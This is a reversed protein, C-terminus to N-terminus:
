PLLLQGFGGDQQQTLGLQAGSITTAGQVRGNPLVYVRGGARTTWEPVGVTLDPKGDGTLDGVSLGDGVWRLDSGSPRPLDQGDIIDAEGPRVGGPGGPLVAIKGDGAVALDETGDGTVDGVTFGRAAELSEAYDLNGPRDVSGVTIPSTFGQRAGLGTSTGPVVSMQPKPVDNRDRMVLDPRGDGTVDGTTAYLGVWDRGFVTARDSLGRPGGLRLEGWYHNEEGQSLWHVMLALDSRGDANFDAVRLSHFADEAGRENPVILKPATEVAPVPRDVVDRFFLLRPIFGGTAVVDFRGNGDFDGIALSDFDSLTNPPTRLEVARRTLGSAGGYIITARPIWYVGSEGWGESRGGVLLDDYGDHDFDASEMTTGFEMTPEGRTPVDLCDHTIIQRGAPDPGQPGSYVVAVYGAAWKGNVKADPRGPVKGYPLSVATDRRGDGNFDGGRNFGGKAARVAGRPTRASPSPAPAASGSPLPTVCGAQTKVNRPSPDSRTVDGVVVLSAVVAVAAAIM